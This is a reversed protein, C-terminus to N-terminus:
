VLNINKNLWFKEYLEKAELMVGPYKHPNSNILFRELIEM